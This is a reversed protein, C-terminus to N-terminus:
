PNQVKTPQFSLNEQMRVACILEAKECFDVWADEIDDESLDEVEETEHAVHCVAGKFKGCELQILQQWKYRYDAVTSPLLDHGAVDCFHDNVV